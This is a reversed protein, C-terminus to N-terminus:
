VSGAPEQRQEKLVVVRVVVEERRLVKKESPWGDQSVEGIERGLWGIEDEDYGRLVERAGDLEEANMAVPDSGRMAVSPRGSAGFRDKFRVAEM